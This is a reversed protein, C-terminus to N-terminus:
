FPVDDPDFDDVKVKPLPELVGQEFLYTPSGCRECFRADPRNVKDCEEPNPINSMGRSCINFLYLGCKWCFLADESFQNNHCRPCAEFRNATSSSSRNNSAAMKQKAGGNEFAWKWAAESYESESQRSAASGTYEAGKRAPLTWENHWRYGEESLLFEKQEDTIIKLESLRIIMTQRSVFFLEALKAPNAKWKAAEERVLEEPMKLAVAGINAQREFPNTTRGLLDDSTCRYTGGPHYRYHVIEHACSFQKREESDSDRLFISPHCNTGHILAAAISDGFHWNPYVDIGLARAIEISDVGVKFWGNEQAFRTLDKVIERHPLLFRRM